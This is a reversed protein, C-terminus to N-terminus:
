EVVIFAFQDTPDYGDVTSGWRVLSNPVTWTQGTPEVVTVSWAGLPLDLPTTVTETVPVGDDGVTTHSAAPLWTVYLTPSLTMGGPPIVGLRTYAPEPVAEAAWSEGPALSKTFTGDANPVGLYQLYVRPWVDDLGLAGYTPHPDYDGDGDADPATILFAAGCEGALLAEPGDLDYIDAHIGTALLDFEQSGAPALADVVGGGLGFGAIEFAPRETSLESALLLTIDEAHSGGGVTVPALTRTVLDTVHAGVVDGCTAGGMADVFPSFDGDVDMLATLVYDGDPVNAVSFHASKIGATDTAFSSPDVTTITAPRGTGYPPMPNSAATVFVMVPAPAADLGLVVEGSIVNLVPKPEGNADISPVLPADYPCGLLLAIWM